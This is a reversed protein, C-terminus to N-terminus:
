CHCTSSSQQLPETVGVRITETKKSLARSRVQIMKKVLYNMSEEINTNTRVSTFVWHVFGHQKSFNEITSESISKGGLDSKNALLISPIPDGNPQLVKNDLEKKWKKCNDLSEENTIDFMVFCGNADQYYNRCMTQFRDQGAMDWLHLRIVENDNWQISKQHYDAGFTPKHSPLWRENVYRHVFSTKGTNSDGIILIKFSTETMAYPDTHTLHLHGCPIDHSPSYYVECDESAIFRLFQM